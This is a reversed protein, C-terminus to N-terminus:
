FDPAEHLPPSAGRKQRLLKAATEDLLWTLNGDKPKVGTAPHVHYDSRDELIERVVPAKEEGAVLFMVERATNLVPLTLTVRDVPPPLVGPPSWTVWAKTEGLAPKGPFLSATHGDDGLGLLIVDFHPFAGGAPVGFFQRLRREYEAACQAPSGAEVPVVLVHDAAIRLPKLLAEAAVRFNSRPDDHPVCREDGFFLWTKSWDIKSRRSPQALLQYTREPTSGGSLVLTFRGRVSIASQAEAIIREAAETSLAEVDRSVVIESDTAMSTM